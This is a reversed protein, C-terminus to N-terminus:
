IAKLGSALMGWASIASAVERDGRTKNRAQAWIGAAKARLDRLRGRRNRERALGTSSTAGPQTLNQKSGRKGQHRRKRVAARQGGSSSLLWSLDDDTCIISRINLTALVVQEDSGLPVEVPQHRELDVLLTGASRAQFSWDDVGLVRPTLRAVPGWRRLLSLLTTGSVPMAHAACQRAGAQGGLAWGMPLRAERLRTTRRASHEALGTLAETFIKRPCAPNQCFFRRVQLHLQVRLPGWPLDQLTRTYHSHVRTSPEACLPCCAASPSSVLVLMVDEATVMLEQLRLPLCVPMLRKILEELRDTSFLWSSTKM